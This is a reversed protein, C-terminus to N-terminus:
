LSQLFALLAGRDRASLRTFRDRAAAGEGGHFLVAEALDSTRGDHLYFAQGNLFRDALRLGWLPATRWERGTADGDPRGDAVDPTIGPM